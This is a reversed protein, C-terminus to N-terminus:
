LKKNVVHTPHKGLNRDGPGDARSVELRTWSRKIKPHTFYIKKSRGFGKPHTPLITDDTTLVVTGFCYARIDGNGKGVSSEGIDTM